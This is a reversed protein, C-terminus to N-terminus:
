IILSNESNSLNKYTKTTVRKPLYYVDVETAKNQYPQMLVLHWWLAFAMYIILSISIIGLFELM